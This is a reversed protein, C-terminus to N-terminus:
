HIHDNELWFQQRDNFIQPWVLELQLQAKRQLQQPSPTHESRSVRSQSILKQCPPRVAPEALMQVEAAGVALAPTDSKKKKKRFYPSFCWDYCQILCVLTNKPLCVKKLGCHPTKVSFHPHVFSYAFYSCGDNRATVHLPQWCMLVPRLWASAYSAQLPMKLGHFIGCPLTLVRDTAM